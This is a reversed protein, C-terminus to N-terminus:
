RRRPLGAGIARAAEASPLPSRVLGTIWCISRRARSTMKIVTIATVSSSSPFVRLMPVTNEIDMIRDHHSIAKEVIGPDPLPEVVSADDQDDRDDGGGQPACGILAFCLVSALAVCGFSFLQRM